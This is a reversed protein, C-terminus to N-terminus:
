RGRPVTYIRVAIRAGEAWGRAHFHGRDYQGEARTLVVPVMILWAAPIVAACQTSAPHVGLAASAFSLM